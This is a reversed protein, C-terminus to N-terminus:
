SYRAIKNQLFKVARFLHVKVTPISCGLVCAIEGAKLGNQHKLIFCLRQREPLRGIYDDLMKATEESTLVKAPTYRTDPFDGEREEQNQATPVFMKKAKKQRRLFDLSCNVAIRYFWTSFNSEERFKQINFYVKLFVEQLVDKTDEINGLLNYCIAFGKNKYMEVLADFAPRSGQRLQAILETENSM